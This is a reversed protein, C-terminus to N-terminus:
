QRQTASASGDHRNSVLTSANVQSPSANVTVAPAPVTRARLTTSPMPVSGTTGAASAPRSPLSTNWAPWYRCWTGASSPASSMVTTPEPCDPASTKRSRSRRWGSVPTRSRQIVCDGANAGM